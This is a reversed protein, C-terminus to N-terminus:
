HTLLADIEDALTKSKNGSAQKGKGSSVFAPEDSVQEEASKAKRVKMGLIERTKPAAEKFVQEITWDPNQAHLENAVAAVTRKVPALDTNTEYFTDVMGKVVTNRQLHGLVIEPIALLVKEYVQKNSSEVAKAYVASLVANFKDKNDVLDDVTMEGIFNEATIELRPLEEAPIEKKEVPAVEGLPQVLTLEEIRELLKKERARLDEITEEEEGPPTELPKIVPEGDIPTVELPEVVPPEGVAPIVEPTVVVEAPPTEVAPTVVVPEETALSGILEAIEDEIKKPPM